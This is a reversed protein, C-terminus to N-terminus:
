EAEERKRKEELLECMEDMIGEFHHTEIGCRRCRKWWKPKPHWPLGYLWDHTDLVTCRLWGLLRRM